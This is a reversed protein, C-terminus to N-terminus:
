KGPTYIDEDPQKAKTPKWCLYLVGGIVNTFILTMIGLWTKRSKNSVSVIAPIGFGWALCTMIIMSYINSYNIIPTAVMGIVTFIIIATEM